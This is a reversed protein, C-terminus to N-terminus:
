TSRKKITYIVIPIAIILQFILIFLAIASVNNNTLSGSIIVMDWIFHYIMLPIINRILIALCSFVIGFVFTLVLQLLMAGFPEGGLVNVSHLLSFAIASAIISYRISRKELFVHLLIGRFMLEESFGVFFTTIIVILVQTFNLSFDSKVLFFSVIVIEFIIYPILWNSYKFSNSLFRMNLKKYGIITFISMILEFFVLVNTMNPNQYSLNFKTVTIMGIGMLFIYIFAIILAKKERTHLIFMRM